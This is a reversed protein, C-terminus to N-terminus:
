ALVEGDKLKTIRDTWIQVCIAHKVATTGNAEVIRDAIEESYVVQAVTREATLSWYSIAWAMVTKTKPLTSRATEVVLRLSADWDKSYRPADELVARIAERLKDHDTSM